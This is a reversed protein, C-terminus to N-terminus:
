MTLTFAENEIHFHVCFAVNPSFEEEGANTGHFFDWIGNLNHKIIVFIGDNCWFAVHIVGNM